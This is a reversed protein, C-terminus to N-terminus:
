RRHKEPVTWKYQYFLREGAKTARVKSTKMIRKRKAKAYLCGPCPKLQDTLKIKREKCTQRLVQESMHNFLDHVQNIDMTNRKYYTSIQEKQIIKGILNFMKGDSAKEM